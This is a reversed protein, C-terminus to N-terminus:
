YKTIVAKKSNGAGCFIAAILIFSNFYTYIALTITLKNAIMTILEYAM